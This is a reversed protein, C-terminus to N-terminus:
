KWWTGRYQEYRQEGLFNKIAAFVSENGPDPQGAAWLRAIQEDHARWERFIARFEEETPQFKSMARRLNDATWSATMDVRELEDPTLAAALEQRKRDYLELRRQLDAAQDVALRDGAAHPIEVEGEAFRQLVALTPERKDSSLFNLQQALVAQRWEGRDTLGPVDESLLNQLVGAMEDDLVQQRQALAARRTANAAGTEWYQFEPSGEAVVARRRAAFNQRVDAIVIDRVTQPPCGIARLNQIYTRYDASEVQRWDFAPAFTTAVPQDPTRAPSVGTEEAVAERPPGSASNGGPLNPAAPARRETVARLGPGWRGQCLLVALLALNLAGLLFILGNRKVRWPHGRRAAACAQTGAQQRRSEWVLTGHGVLPIGGARWRRPSRCGEAAKQSAARPSRFAKSFHRVGVRARSCPIDRPSTAGVVAPAGRAAGQM